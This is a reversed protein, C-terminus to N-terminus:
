AYFHANQQISLLFSTRKRSKRLVPLMRLQSGMGSLHSHSVINRVFVHINEAIATAFVKCFGGYVRKRGQNRRYLSSFCLLPSGRGAIASFLCAYVCVNPM